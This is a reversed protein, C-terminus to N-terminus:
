RVALYVLAAMGLACFYGNAFMLRVGVGDRWGRHVYRGPHNKAKGQYYTM